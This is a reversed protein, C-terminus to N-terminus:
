TGVKFFIIDDAIISTLTTRRGTSEDTVDGYSVRGSVYVRQGKKLYTYVVDRLTPKFVCVRHWDVKQSPTGDEAFQYFFYLVLSHM